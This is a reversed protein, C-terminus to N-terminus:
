FTNIEIEAPIVADAGFTLNLPTDRTGYHVITWIAWLTSSLEKAWQRKADDLSKKISGLIKKNTAEIQGNTQPHSVFTPAVLIHLNDYFLSIQDKKLQPGNNSHNPATSRILLHHKGM